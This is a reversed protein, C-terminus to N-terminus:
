PTFEIGLRLQGNARADDLGALYSLALTADGVRFTMRPGVYHAHVDPEGYAELGLAVGESLSWMGRVAYAPAWEVGDDVQGAAILNVRATFAGTRGEGLLKLDIADNAGNVAAKYEVLAGFHVPWERTSILDFVNELSISTLEVEDGPLQSARLNLAPRWWNTVGYSAIARHNWVGDLADGEFAVTRLEIRADDKRVAPGSVGSVAGPEAHAPIACAFFALAPLIPGCWALFRRARM